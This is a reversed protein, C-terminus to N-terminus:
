HYIKEKAARFKKVAGKTQERCEALNTLIEKAKRSGLGFMAEKVLEHNNQFIVKAEGVLNKDMDLVESPMKVELPQPMEVTPMELNGM